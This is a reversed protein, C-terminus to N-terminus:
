TAPYKKRPDVGDSLWGIMSLPAMKVSQPMRLITTADAALASNPARNMFLLSPTMKLSMSALSPWLCGGVGIWQSLLVAVPMALSVTFFCRELDM